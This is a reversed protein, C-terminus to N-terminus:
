ENVADPIEAIQEEVTKQEEPVEVPAEGGINETIVEQEDSM